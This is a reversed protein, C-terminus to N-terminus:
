ALFVIDLWTMIGLETTLCRASNPAWWDMTAMELDILHLDPRVGLIGNYVVAWRSGPTGDCLHVYRAANGPLDGLTLMISDRNPTLIPM